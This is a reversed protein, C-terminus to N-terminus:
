QSLVLVNFTVGSLNDGTPESQPADAAPDYDGTFVMLKDTAYDYAVSYGGCNQGIVALVNRAGGVKAEVLAKFGTTGGGPYNADGAFSMREAFLPASAAGGGKKTLTIEGIAM